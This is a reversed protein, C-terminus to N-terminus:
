IGKFCSFPQNPVRIQLIFCGHSAILTPPDRFNTNALRTDFIIRQTKVKKFVFFLGVTAEKLGGYDVLGAGALQRLFEGYWSGSGVLAPDSYPQRVGLEARLRLADDPDRLLLQQWRLGYQSGGEGLLKGM